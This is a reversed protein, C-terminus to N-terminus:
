SNPIACDDGEPSLPEKARRLNLVHGVAVLSVGIVTLVAEKSGHPVLLAAGMFGLGVIAVVSPAVRRHRLAGMGISFAAIMAALGLGVRHISPELLLGGGIGLGAVLVLTGLCHVVCLGSLLM